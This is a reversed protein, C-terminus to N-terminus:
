LKNTNAELFRAQDELEAYLANENIRRDITHQTEYPHATM